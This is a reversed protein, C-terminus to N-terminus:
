QSLTWVRSEQVITKVAALAYLAATEARLVTDGMWVPHFGKEKLSVCEAASFGGEPGILLDLRDPCAALLQHLSTDELRDQHCFLRLGGCAGEVAAALPLPSAIEPLRPAGSQQLAERAIRRWRELHRRQKDGEDLRAITHGSIVPVLRRVGAETAQRVVTDMKRGKPLCQLLTIELGTEPLGIKEEAELLLFEADVAVAKMRWSNGRGDTGRLRSGERLRLVHTLYHHDKGTIKIAEGPRAERPLLFTRM